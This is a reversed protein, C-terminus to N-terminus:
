AGLGVEYSCITSSSLRKEMELSQAGGLNGLKHLLLDIKLELIVSFGTDLWSLMHLFRLYREHLNDIARRTHPIDLWALTVALKVNGGV